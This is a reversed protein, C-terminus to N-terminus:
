IARTHARDGYAAHWRPVYGPFTIYLEKLAPCYKQIHNLIEHEPFEIHFNRYDRNQWPTDYLALRTIRSTDISGGYHYFILLDEANIILIDDAPRMYMNMRADNGRDPNRVIDPASWVEAHTDLGGVDAQTEKPFKRVLTRGASTLEIKRYTDKVLSRASDCVPKYEHIFVNLTTHLVGPTLLHPPAYQLNDNSFGFRVHYLKTSPLLYRFIERQIELPLKPFMPFTDMTIDQPAPSEIYMTPLDFANNLCGIIPQETQDITTWNM